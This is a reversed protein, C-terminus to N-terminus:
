WIIQASYQKLASDATIIPIGEVLSQAILLRDFPDRHHLPISNLELAHRAEVALTSVNNQLLQARLYRDEPKPLPLKGTGIKLSIEWLSAASLFLETAGSRIVKSATESLREPESVAWLFVHTDLLARM